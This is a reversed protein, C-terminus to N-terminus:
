PQATNFEGVRCEPSLFDGFQRMGSRNSIVIEPQLKRAMADLEAARWFDPVQPNKEYDPARPTGLKHVNMGHSLWFDEGGDYWLVDIKGYNTLLERVQQHCQERMQDASRKYLRPLFYGPLRWDMPSYYLGVGLGAERCARTYEAVIDRKIAARMSTFDDVSYKSNFLSFGDHHRATLVMYKMGAAKAADVWVRPNFKEATFRELLLRYEDKDIPKNFMAWEGEGLISYLGWHMFMGFRRDKWAEIHPKPM